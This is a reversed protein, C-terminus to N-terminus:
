SQGAPSPAASASPAPAAPALPASTVADASAAASGPATPAASASPSAPAGPSASASPPAGSPSAVGPAPEASAHPPPYSNAPRLEGDPNYPVHSVSKGDLIVDIATAEDTQHLPNPLENVDRVPATMHPTVIIVLETENRQWDASRFLTGLVPVSSAGPVQNITNSYSRQFLGAIAFSDGDALEIQTSARREAIGPVQFGQVNVGDKTDLESVEPEVKLIIQGNGEVTPTVHLRVGFERFAITVGNQGNPIPYPFEGGALFSAEQGSMAMLTPRALERIAGKQELATLSADINWAGFQHNVGVTGFPAIGSPSAAGTSLTFGGFTKVNINFGLDKIASHSAELIRVDVLVQQAAHITLQNDVQKPAYREAIEGARAAIAPTSVEGTLLIGGAFNTASVHEDPLAMALDARLSEVDYGVRVDVVQALRHQQDYILINTVGLQKGRVYFSRDTTAVLSLTEPQAVVIESAPYDLRFAASKDKPVVITQAGGQDQAVQAAAPGSAAIAVLATAAFALLKNM